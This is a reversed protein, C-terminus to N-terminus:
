AVHAQPGVSCVEFQQSHMRSFAFIFVRCSASLLEIEITLDIALLVDEIHQGDRSWKEGKYFTADTPMFYIM